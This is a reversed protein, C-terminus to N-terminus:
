VAERHRAIEVRPLSVRFISGGDARDLVNVSGGHWQVVEAVLALGLGLGDIGEATKGRAFRRFIRERDEEAVGAGRDAVDLQVVEGEVRLAVSVASTEPSFKLANTVLNDVVHELLAADGHIWARTTATMDIIRNTARRLLEIRADLLAALDVDCATTEFDRLALRELDLLGRVLRELKGAEGGILTAVRRREDDSLDFGALVQSLSRMSALPTKLEHALIRKSEVEEARRRAISTALAELRPGIEHDGFASGRVGLNTQMTTAAIRGHRILSVLHVAEGAVIPLAVGIAITIAPIAVNVLALLYMAALPMAIVGCTVVIRLLAPLRGLSLALWALLAAALGAAFPPLERLVDGSLFSETAAAHVLVGPDASGKSRPTVVRDGLAFATLGVLVIRGRLRRLAAADRRLVDAASVSRIARPPVRFAPALARGVPVPRGTRRSALQLPLATFALDGSQKTTAIRRLVGDYDLEFSAHAASASGRLTSPPLIWAGSEDLAVVMTAPLTRLAAALRDDGPRSEALLIDIAIASAGARAATDVIGALQTRSWPWAGVARISAEDIAVVVTSQATREPLLRLAGDRAALDFPAGVDFAAATAVLLGTAAVVLWRAAANRLM